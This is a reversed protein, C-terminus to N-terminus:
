QGLYPQITRALADANKIGYPLGYARGQRDILLMPALPPNLYEASYLNGLARMVELPAVAFRWDYGYTKAYKNLSEADEHFDTDLSISILDPPNGLAIHAKKVENEQARCNPCWEAMAEILIVKGAFDNITFNQRTQVDTMQMGFWAPADSAPAQLKPSGSSAASPTPATSVPTAACAPLLLFALLLLTRVLKM